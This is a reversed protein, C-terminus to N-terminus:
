CRKTRGFESVIPSFGPPVFLIPPLGYGTLVENCASLKAASAPQPLFSAGLLVKLATSGVSKAQQVQLDRFSSPEESTMQILSRVGRAQKSLISGFSSVGVMLCLSVIVIIM